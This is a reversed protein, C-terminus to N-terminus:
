DILLRPKVEEGNADLCYLLRANIPPAEGDKSRLRVSAIYRPLREVGSTSLVFQNTDLRVARRVSDSDSLEEMGSYVGDPCQVLIAIRCADVSGRVDLRYERDGLRTLSVSVSHAITLMYLAVGAVCLVCLVAGAIIFKARTKM